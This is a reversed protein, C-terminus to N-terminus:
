WCIKFPWLNESKHLFKKIEYKYPRLLYDNVRKDIHIKFSNMNNLYLNISFIPEDYLIIDNFNKDLCVDNFSKNLIKILKSNYLNFLKIFGMFILVDNKNINSLKNNCYNLIELYDLYNTSEPKDVNIDKLWGNYLFSDINLYNLGWFDYGKNIINFIYEFIEESLFTSADLWLGYKSNKIYKDINYRVYYAKKRPSWNKNTLENDVIIEWNYAEINPNDTICIYRVNPMDLQEHLIDYDGFIATIVTLKIINEELKKKKIIM